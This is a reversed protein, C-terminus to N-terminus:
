IFVIKIAVEKAWDECSHRRRRRRRRWSVREEM